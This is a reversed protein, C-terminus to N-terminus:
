CSVRIGLINVCVGAGGGSGNSSQTASTSIEVNATTGNGADLSVNGGLNLPSSDSVGDDLSVDAVVDLLETDGAALATDADIGGVNTDMNIFSTLDIRSGTDIVSNTAVTVVPIAACNGSVALIGSSAFGPTNNMNVALWQHDATSGIVPVLSNVGIRGVIPADLSNLSRVNVGVNVGSSVICGSDTNLNEDLILTGGDQGTGSNPNSTMASGGFGSAFAGRMSEPCFMETPAGTEMLIGYWQAHIPNDAAINLTYSASGPAFRLCMGNVGMHATAINENTRADSIVLAPANDYDASVILLFLSQDDRADFRYWNSLDATDVYDQLASGTPLSVFIDQAAVPQFILVGTVITIFLLSFTKLRM